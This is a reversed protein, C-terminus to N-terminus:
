RPFLDVNFINQDGERVTVRKTQSLYGPASIRVTYTGPPVEFTFAGKANASAKIGAEPLELVAEVPKGGRASRVIGTIIAPLVKKLPVLQVALTATKGPAISVAEEAPQYGDASLRVPVPGPSLGEVVAEGREDTVVSRGAVELAVGALAKGTGHETVTATLRGVKPAEKKLRLSLTVEADAEVRAGGEASEYGPATARVTVLGPPLAPVLAVGGVDTTVSRREPGATCEVEALLPAATDADLVSIRLSGAAPRKRAEDRWRVDLGIGARLVQQATSTAGGAESLSDSVWTVDGLLGWQMAGMAFLNVRVSGGASLGQASPARASSTTVALALPYEFRGELSLPGLDVSARAALLV